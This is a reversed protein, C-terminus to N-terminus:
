VIGLGRAYWGAAAPVALAVAVLIWRHYEALTNTGLGLVLSVPVSAAWVALLGVLFLGVVLAAGAALAPDTRDQRGAAFVLTGVLAFLGGFLANFAGAAYYTGVAAPDVFLYPVVFGALVALCAAIGVTPALRAVEM